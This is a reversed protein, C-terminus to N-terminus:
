VNLTGSYYNGGTLGIGVYESSSSSNVSELMIVDGDAPMHPLLACTIWPLDEDRVYTLRSRSDQVFPGHISPIRIKIKLTGDNAYEYDKAYGYIIM